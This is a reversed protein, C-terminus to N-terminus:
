GQGHLMYRYWEITKRLGEEFDMEVRFRFEEWARNTDLKRRPQGRQIFFDLNVSANSRVLDIVSEPFMM